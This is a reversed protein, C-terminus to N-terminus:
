LPYQLTGNLLAQWAEAYGDASGADYIPTSPPLCLLRNARALPNYADIDDLDKGVPNAQANRLSDFFEDTIMARGAARWIRGEPRPGDKPTFAEVLHAYGRREGAVVFNNGPFYPKDDKCAVCCLGSSDYANKLAVFLGAGDTVINDPYMFYFENGDAVARGRLLADGLGAPEPQEVITIEIKELLSRWEAVEDQDSYAPNVEGELFARLASKGPSIVVVAADIGAAAAEAFLWQIAPRTGVPALEKSAVASFPLMRTGLGGAPVIAQM